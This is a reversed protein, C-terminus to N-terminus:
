DDQAGTFTYREGTPTLLAPGFHCIASRYPHLAFCQITDGDVNQKLMIAKKYEEHDVDVVALFHKKNDWKVGEMTPRPKPPLVKLIASHWEEETDHSGHLNLACAGYYLEELADYAAQIEERTPETM